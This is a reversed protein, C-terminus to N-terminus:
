PWVYQLVPSYAPQMYFNYMSLSAEDQAEPDCIYTAGNMDIAVWGHPGYGGAAMGVQGEIYRANYGLGQALFYFAAAYCYCNGSGVEFAQIAYWEARTYGEPPNLPIPLTRYSVNNVVWWYCSYLDRGVQNYVDNVHSYVRAKAETGNIQISTTKVPIRVGNSLLVYAQVKYNGFHFEHLNVNAEAGYSGDSQRELTYLHSDSWDDYTYAAAQVKQIGLSAKPDEVKIWFTGVNEDVITAKVSSCSATLDIDPLEGAMYTECFRQIMTACVARNTSNQPNLMGQDGSIIGVGVAWKMADEAFQNVKAADPFKDLKASESTDFEKYEAYRYLMTAMEERTIPDNPGFNGNEYGGVVAVDEQSAWSVAQSYFTGNPVDPFKGNYAADPSGSLRYLVTAFQARALNEGPAFLNDGKGTMIGKNLVYGVYPRYWDGTNVDDFVTADVSFTTIVDPAEIEDDADINEAEEAMDDATDETETGEEVTGETAKKGSEEDSGIEEPQTVVTESSEAADTGSEEEGSVNAWVDNEGGSMETPVEDAAVQLDPVTCVMMAAMILASIRKMRKKM